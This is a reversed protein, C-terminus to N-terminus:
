WVSTLLERVQGHMMELFQDHKDTLFNEDYWDPLSYYFGLPMDHKHCAEALEKVIDRGFLADEATSKYDTINRIGIVSGMM